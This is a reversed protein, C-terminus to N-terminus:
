SHMLAGITCDLSGDVSVALSGDNALQVTWNNGDASGTMLATIADSPLGLTTDMSLTVPADMLGDISVATVATGLKDCSGASHDPDGDSWVDVDASAAPTITVVVDSSDAGCTATGSWEGGATTYAAVVDSLGNVDDDSVEAATGIVECAPPNDCKGCDCGALMTVATLVGICIRRNM